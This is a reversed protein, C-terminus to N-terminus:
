DEAAEHDLLKSNAADGRRDLMDAVTEQFATFFDAFADLKVDIVYLPIDRYILAQRAYLVSNQIYSTIVALTGDLGNAKCHGILETLTKCEEIEKSLNTDWYQLKATHLEDHAAQTLDGLTDNLCEELRFLDDSTLGFLLHEALERRRVTTTSDGGKFAVDESVVQGVLYAIVFAKQVEGAGAEVDSFDHRITSAIRAAQTLARVSIFVSPTAPTTPVVDTTSQSKTTKTM